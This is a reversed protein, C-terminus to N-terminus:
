HDDSDLELNTGSTTTRIEVHQIEGGSTGVEKSLFATILALILTLVGMFSAIRNKMVSAFFSILGLIGTAYLFLVFKEALHEHNEILDHTVNPLNEVIEEAKDGTVMSLFGTIASFAFLLYAVRKVIENKMLIGVLLIILGIITGIIPFHNIALHVHADNM